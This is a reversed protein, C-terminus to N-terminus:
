VHARGIKIEKHAAIENEYIKLRALKNLVNLQRIDLKAAAVSKLTDKDDAGFTKSVALLMVSGSDRGSSHCSEAITRRVAILQASISM